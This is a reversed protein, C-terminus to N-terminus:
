RPLPSKELGDSLTELLEGLQRASDPGLIDAIQRELEIMAADARALLEEGAETIWLEIVHRHSPRPRREILGRLELRAALGVINQPSVNLERAMEAGTGGPRFSIAALLTYHAVPLDLPRLRQEKATNLTKNARRSAWIVRNFTQDGM